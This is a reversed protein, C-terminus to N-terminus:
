RPPESTTSGATSPPDGLGRGLREFPWVDPIDAPPRPPPVIKYAEEGPKVLGYNERALREIEEDTELRDRRQRADANAQELQALRQEAVAVQERRDLFTRAPVVGFGFMAAAALLLLAPWALRRAVLGAGGM